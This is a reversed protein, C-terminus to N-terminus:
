ACPLVRTPPASPRLRSEHRPPRGSLRAPLEAAHDAAGVGGRAHAKPTCRTYYRLCCTGRLLSARRTWLCATIRTPLIRRWRRRADAAATAAAMGRRLWLPKPAACDPVREILDEVRTRSGRRTATAFRCATTSPRDGRGAGLPRSLVAGLMHGGRRASAQTYRAERREDRAHSGLTPPWGRLLHLCRPCTRRPTTGCTTAWGSSSARAAAAQGCLGPRRAGEAGRRARSATGATAGAHEGRNVSICRRRLHTELRSAHPLENRKFRCQKRGGVTSSSEADPAPAHVHAGRQGDQRCGDAWVRARTSIRGRGSSAIRREVVSGVPHQACHEHQLHSEKAKAQSPRARARKSTLTCSSLSGAGCGEAGGASAFQDDEGGVLALRRDDFELRCTLDPDLYPLTSPLCPSSPNVPHAVGPQRVLEIADPRYTPDRKRREEGLVYKRRTRSRTWIKKQSRKRSPSSAPAPARNPAGSNQYKHPEALM